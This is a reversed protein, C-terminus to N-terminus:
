VSGHPDGPDSYSEFTAFTCKLWRLLFDDQAVLSMRALRISAVRSRWTFGNLCFTIYSIEYTGGAAAVRGRDGVVTMSTSFSSKSSQFNGCGTARSGPEVMSGGAVFPFFGGLDGCFRLDTEYCEGLRRHLEWFERGGSFGRKFDLSSPSKEMAISATSNPSSVSWVFHAIRFCTPNVGPGVLQLIILALLFLFVFLEKVKSAKANNRSGASFAAIFCRLLQINSM